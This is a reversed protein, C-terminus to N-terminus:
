QLVRSGSFVPSVLIARLFTLIERYCAEPHTEMPCHAAGPVSFFEADPFVSLFRKAEGKVWPDKEGLLVFFPPHPKGRFASLKLPAARTLFELLARSTGKRQLPALYGLFEEEEPKRGYAATVFRRVRSPSLFARRLATRLFSQFPPFSVLPRLFRWGRRGFAPAVLVTGAVDEPREVAMRFAIGGGMSHGILFWPTNQLPAPVYGQAKLADLLNWLLKAQVEMSAIGRRTSYGFGPLDVMVLFFGEPLLYEPAYRWSFTSGGLGHIFLVKGRPTVPPAFLRVHLALGSVDLCVSEPFAQVCEQAEGTWSVFVVCVLVLMCLKMGM